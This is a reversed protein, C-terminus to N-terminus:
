PNTFDLAATIDEDDLYPYDDLIEARASGGALMDLIDRVRIRLCRICPSGGCVEPNITIRDTPMHDRMRSLAKSALM